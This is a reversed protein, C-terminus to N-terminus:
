STVRFVKWRTVTLANGANTRRRVQMVANDPGLRLTARDQPDNVPVDKESWVAVVKAGVMLRMVPDDSDDPITGSPFSVEAAIVYPTDAELTASPAVVVWTTDAPTIDRATNVLFVGSGRKSLRVGMEAWQRRCDLQIDGGEVYYNGPPMGSSAEVLVPVSINLLGMASINLANELPDFPLRGHPQPHNYRTLMLQALAQGEAQFIDSDGAGAGLFVTTPLDLFRQDYLDVAAQDRLDPLTGDGYLAIGRGSLELKTLNVPFANTNTITVTTSVRTRNTYVITVNSTVLVDALTKFEAVATTWQIVSKVNSNALNDPETTMNIRFFRASNADIELPNDDIDDKRYTYVKKDTQVVAREVGVRIVTYINDWSDEPDVIGLPRIRLNGAGFGFIPDASSLERHFREEFVIFDGRREHLLGLEAEETTRMVPGLRGLVRPALISTYHAPQLRLQGADIDRLPGPWGTQDLADHIVEGTRVTETTFLSLEYADKAFLAMAGEAVIITQKLNTSHNIQPRVTAVYGHAVEVGDHNFHIRARPLITSPDYRGSENDLIIQMQMPLVRSLFSAESRGWKAFLQLVNGLEDTFEGDRDIELSFQHFAGAGAPGPIPPADTAGFASASWASTGESNVARVQCEYATSYLLNTIDTSTGIIGLRTTWPLTNRQRHRLDYTELVLPAQAM